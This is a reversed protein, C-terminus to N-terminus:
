AEVGQVTVTMADVEAKVIRNRQKKENTGVVKLGPIENDSYIFCKGTSTDYEIPCNQFLDRNKATIFHEGKGDNAEQDWSKIIDDEHKFNWVKDNSM